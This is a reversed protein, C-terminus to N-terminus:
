STNDDALTGDRESRVGDCAYFHFNEKVVKEPYFDSCAVIRKRPLKCVVVSSRKTHREDEQM